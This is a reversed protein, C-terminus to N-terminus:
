IIKGSKFDEMISKRYDGNLEGHICEVPFGDNKLRDNIEM